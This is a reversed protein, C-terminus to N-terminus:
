FGPIAYAAMDAIDGFGATEHGLANLMHYGLINHPQQSGRAAALDYVNGGARIGNGVLGVLVAPIDTLQHDGRGMESAWVILTNDLMTGFGDQAGALDLALKRVLSAYYQNISTVRGTTALEAPSSGPGDSVDHHAIDDHHNLGIGDWAFMWKGGGYGLQLSAVRTLRCKIAAGIITVMADLMDPVYTEINIENNIGGPPISKFDPPASVTYPYGGPDAILASLKNEADRVASLHIDLKRRDDPGLQGSLDQLDGAVADLVSKRLALRRAASPDGTQPFTNVFATLPDIVPLNLRQPGVYSFSARHDFGKKPHAEIQSAYVATTLAQVKWDSALIQDVSAAGGWPAGDPTPMLQAGTFMRAFGVDHENGNTSVDNTVELGRILNTKAKLGNDAVGRSTFLADLIPTNTIPYVGANASPRTPWFNCRKTGNNQMFIVLRKTPTPDNASLDRALTLTIPIAALKQLVSRRSFTM